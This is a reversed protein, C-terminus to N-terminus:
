ENTEIIVHQGVIKSLKQLHTEDLTLKSQLEKALEDVNEYGVDAAYALCLIAKSPVKEEICADILASLSEFRPVGLVKQQQKDLTIFLDWAKDFSKNRLFLVMINGLMDGTVTILNTKMENQNMVKEYIDAGINAFKEVLDPDNKPENSIMIDIVFNLISEKRCLDFIIMDSWLKPLFEIAGSIEISKLIEEIVSLEPTYIHPVLKDYVNQMFEQIPESNVSLIFFHRYYLSERFSDGILNYNNGYHLLKDVRKALSVDNLHYRCINMATVFFNVDRIDRIMHEKNEIENMIDFLITSTPGREKCYIQLIFSWSALSPEIGFKRFESLSKLAYDKSVKSGMSSLCYLLANLTGLNPKLKKDNMENLLQVIYSWRMDYNEKLLNGAEILTNYTNVNLTLGKQKAEEFLQTARDIQYYKGMGQIIASYAEANPEKISIFIEEAFAGDKWTKRQREGKASQRFWREEIFEEPLSDQSNYFCLLELMSQMVELEIEVSKGKLLKYVLISDDVNVKEICEKLDDISVISDEKYVKPPAFMNIFPEAEKHQFLDVNEKRVWHAAKRGAEQAMSLSRKGLNSNPILYPDDHFKYHAATPDKVITSELARLIDTPGRPIKQPIVIEETTSGVTCNMRRWILSISITKHSIRSSSYNMRACQLLQINM